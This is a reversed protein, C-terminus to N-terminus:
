LYANLMFRCSKELIRYYSFYSTKCSLSCLTRQLLYISFFYLKKM